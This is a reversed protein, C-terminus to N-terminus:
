KIKMTNLGFLSFKLWGFAFEMLERDEGALRELQEPDVDFLQLFRSEFVFKRFKDLNYSAMFFMQMKRPIEKEPGLSRPSSIIELWLDNM